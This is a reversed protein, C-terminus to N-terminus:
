ARSILSPRTFWAMVIWFIQSGIATLWLFVELLGLAALIIILVTFDRNAMNGLILDLQASQKLNGRAIQSRLSEGRRVMWLSLANGLIACAGLALPLFSNAGQEVYLGWAIGGFVAMHVLNDGLIDLDAGLKSESFTLRAVDGDCCDVIASLQFLLAGVIGAVYTGQAFSFAAVLGILMSLITIANPSFGIKLFVRTLPKSFFRNFYKDVFGDHEGRHSNLLTLEASKVSVPDLVEQYWSTTAESATVTRVKGESIAHELIARLPPTMTVTGITGATRLLPAPIVLLDAAVSDRRGAAEGSCPLREYLAIARSGRAKVAPNTSVGARQEDSVQSVVIAPEGARVQEMLQELLESSFLTRGGVVLCAGRVEAGLAEWTRYDDPPFERVPMWRVPIKVRGDARLSEKLVKEEDGAVILLEKMGSRQLTLVARLFLSLGGVSTLPGADSSRHKSRGDFLGATTLLVAQDVGQAVAINQVTPDSM